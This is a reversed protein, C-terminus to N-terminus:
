LPLGCGLECLVGNMYKAAAHSGNVFGNGVQLRTKVVDM